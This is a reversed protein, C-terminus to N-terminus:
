RMGGFVGKTPAFKLVVWAPMCASPSSFSSSIYLMKSVVAISLLGGFTPMDLFLPAAPMATQSPRM